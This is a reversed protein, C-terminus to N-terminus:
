LVGRLLLEGMRSLRYYTHHTRTEKKAKAKRHKRKLVKATCAEVLKERRMRELLEKAQEGPMSVLRATVLHNECGSRRLVELVDPAEASYRERLYRQIGAGLLSRVKHRGGRTLTYYLHHKRVEHALKFRAESRKIASGPSREVLHMRELQALVPVVEEQRLGLKRAIGKAYDTNARRLHLLVYVQLPTLAAEEMSL